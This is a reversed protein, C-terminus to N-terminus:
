SDLTSGCENPSTAFTACIVEKYGDASRSKVQAEVKNIILTPSGSVDLEESLKADASLLEKGEKEACAKVTAVTIGQKTACQEWVTAVNKYDKNVCELYNLYKDNFKSQICVQRLDEQVEADGHLSQFKGDGLDSVIFRIKYDIKGKLLEAVSKIANEAQVGYPCQSMVFLNVEPKDTKQVTTTTPTNDNSASDATSADMPIAALVFLKGDQSVYSSYEKGDIEFEVKYLGSEKEISAVEITSTPQMTKVFTEFKTSADSASIAGTICSKSFGNTLIAIIFLIALIGSLTKWNLLSKFKFSSKKKEHEKHEIKEEHKKHEHETM